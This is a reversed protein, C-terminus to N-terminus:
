KNRKKIIICTIGGSVLALAISAGIWFMWAMNNQPTFLYKNLDFLEDIPTGGGDSDKHLLRDEYVTKAFAYFDELPFLYESESALYEKYLVYDGKNTSYCIYVGDHSPEGNLCYINYIEVSSEFVLNPSVAYLYFEKWDSILMSPNVEIIEGKSYNKYIINDKGSIIMYLINKDKIIDDMSQQLSFGKMFSGSYLKVITDKSTNQVLEKESSNLMVSDEREIAMAPIIFLMLLVFITLSTVCFHKM